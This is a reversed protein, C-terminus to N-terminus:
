ASFPASKYILSSKINFIAIKDSFNASLKYQYISTTTLIIFEDPSKTVSSIQNLIM